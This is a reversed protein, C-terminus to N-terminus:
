RASAALAEAAIRSWIPRAARAHSSSANLLSQAGPITEGLKQDNQRAERKMAYLLRSPWPPRAHRAQVPPTGNERAVGFAQPLTRTSCVGM